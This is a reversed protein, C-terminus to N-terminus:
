KKKVGKEFLQPHAELCKHLYDLLGRNMKETNFEERKQLIRRMDWLDAALEDHINKAPIAKGKGGHSRKEKHM